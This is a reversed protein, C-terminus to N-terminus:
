LTIQYIKQDSALFYITKTDSNFTLSLVKFKDLNFKSVFEGTKKYVYILKYDDPFVLYDSDPNTILDSASNIEFTQKTKFNDKLGSTYLNIQGSSTLVWIQGDITLSKAGIELKQSNKLWNQPSSFGSANPTFKWISQNSNDLIYISGNWFQLDTLNISPFDALNLKSIIEDKNILNIQNSSLFYINNNDALIKQASKIKDSIALNKTSKSGPSFSDVRGSTSDLLYVIDKSFIIQSFTPNKTILSTDYLMQPTITDSDGSQSLISNIQSLYQTVQDSHINLDSMNEIIKQAEKATNYATDLDLSKIASINNLKQELETKYQNFTSETQKSQNKKHGFYFSISLGILLILAMFLRIKQHNGIKFNSPQRVYIPDIKPNPIIPPPSLKEPQSPAPPNQFIIQPQGTPISTTSDTESEIEILAASMFNQNDSSYLSSLFTEEINQIKSDVLTTKIKEWSIQSTFESTSIFFRDLHKIPGSIISPSTNESLIQSIQSGRQLSIKIDGFSLLFSQQHLIVIIALSLKDTLNINQSITKVTNLLSDAPNTIPNSFYQSNIQDILQHGQAVLDPSSDSKLSILGFLHGKTDKINSDPENEWYQSWWNPTNKGIFSRCIFHM